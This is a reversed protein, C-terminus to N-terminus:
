ESFFHRLWRIVDPVRCGSALPRSDLLFPGLCAYASARCTTTRHSRTRLVGPGPLYSLTIFVHLQRGKSRPLVHVYMITQVRYAIEYWQRKPM